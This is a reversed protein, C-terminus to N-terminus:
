ERDHVHLVCYKCIADESVTALAYSNAAALFPRYYTNRVSKTSSQNPAKIADTAAKSTFYGTVGAAVITAVVTLVAFWLGAATGKRVPPVAAQDNSM